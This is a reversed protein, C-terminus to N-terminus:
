PKTGLRVCGPPLRVPRVIYSALTVPLHNSISLSISGCSARAAKTTLGCYRQVTRKGGRADDRLKLAMGRATIPEANGSRADSSLSIARRRLRSFGDRRTAYIQAYDTDPFFQDTRSTRRRCEHRGSRMM